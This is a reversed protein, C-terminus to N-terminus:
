VMPDFIIVLTRILASRSPWTLFLLHSLLPLPQLEHSSPFIQLPQMLPKPSEPVRLSQFLCAFLNRVLIELLLTARSFGENSSRQCESRDCLVYTGNWTLLKHVNAIACFVAFIVSEIRSQSFIQLYLSWDLTWQIRKRPVSPEWLRPDEWNGM